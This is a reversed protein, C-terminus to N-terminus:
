QYINSGTIEELINRNFEAENLAKEYKLKTQYYIEVSSKYINLDMFGKEFSQENMEMDTRNNELVHSQIEIENLYYTLQNYHYIVKEKLLHGESKKLYELEQIKAKKVKIESNNLGIKSIPLRLNLGLNYNTNQRNSYNLGYIGANIIEDQIVGNGYSAGGTIYIFDMWGKRIKKIEEGVQIQQQEIAPLAGSNMLALDMLEELSKLKVQNPNEAKTIGPLFIILCIGIKKILSKNLKIESNSKSFSQFWNRKMFPKELLIYSPVTVMLIALLVLPLLVIFAMWYESIGSLKLLGPVLGELLPLHILYITYCMGGFITLVKNSIITNIVRSRFLSIFFFFLAFEFIYAPLIQERWTLGLLPLTIVFVIDWIYNRKLDETSKFYDYIMIGLLFHHLNGLLSAKFPQLQWGLMHEIFIFSLIFITMLARRKGTSRMQFYTKAIIPSILYYQFEVELSWAVPNIISYESYVINHLYVLSFFWHSLTEQFNFGMILLVLAFFTMWIIYSPELRELRRKIFNKYSFSTRGSNSYFPASLIFGSLTFFIFVGITGRSMAFSWIGEISSSNLNFDAYKLIRENFHQLIVLFIAIFRTGDVFPIYQAGNTNRKLISTILNKM